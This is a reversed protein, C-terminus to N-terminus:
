CECHHPAIVSLTDLLCCPKTTRMAIIVIVITIMAMVAKMLMIDM